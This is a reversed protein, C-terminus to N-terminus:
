CNYLHLFWFMIKKHKVKLFQFKENEPYFIDCNCENENWKQTKDLVPYIYLKLNIDLYKMCFKFSKHFIPIAVFATQYM